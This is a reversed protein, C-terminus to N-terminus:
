NGAVIWGVLAALALVFTGGIVFWGGTHWWVGLRYGLRCAWPEPPTTEWEAYVDGTRVNKVRHYGCQYPCWYEVVDGSWWRADCGWHIGGCQPCTRQSLHPLDTM